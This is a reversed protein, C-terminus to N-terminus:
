AVVRALSEEAAILQPDLRVAAAYREAARADGARELTAGALLQYWADGSGLADLKPLLAAAGATAGPVLFSAVRAFALTEPPVGVEEARSIAGEFAIDNGGRLLGALAREHLWALAARPSRSDLDFAIGITDELPKLQAPRSARLEAEIKELMQEAQAHQK